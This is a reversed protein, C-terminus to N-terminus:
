IIGNIVHIILHISTLLPHPLCTKVVKVNNITSSCVILTFAHIGSRKIESTSIRSDRDGVNSIYGVTLSFDMRYVGAMSHHILLYWKNGEFGTLQYEAKWLLPSISVRSVLWMLCKRLSGLLRAMSPTSLSNLPPQATYLGNTLPWNSFAPSM